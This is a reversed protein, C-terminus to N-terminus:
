TGHALQGDQGCGWTYLKGDTTVVATSTLGCGVRWPDGDIGAVPVPMTMNKGDGHGLQGM